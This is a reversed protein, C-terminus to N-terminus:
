PRKSRSPTAPITHWCWPRSTTSRSAASAGKIKGHMYLSSADRRGIASADQRAVMETCIAKIEAETRAESVKYYLSTKPLLQAGGKAAVETTVAGSTFLLGALLISPITNHRKAAALALHKM